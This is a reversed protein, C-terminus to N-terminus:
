CLMKFQKGCFKCISEAEIALKEKELWSKQNKDLNLDYYFERRIEQRKSKTSIEFRETMVKFTTAAVTRPTSTKASSSSSTENLNPLDQNM